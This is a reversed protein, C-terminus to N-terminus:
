YVCTDTMLRDFVGVFIVFLLMVCLVCFLLIFFMNTISMYYYAGIHLCCYSLGDDCM